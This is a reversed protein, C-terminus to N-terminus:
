LSGVIVMPDMLCGKRTSGTSGGELCLHPSALVLVGPHTAVALLPGSGAQQALGM